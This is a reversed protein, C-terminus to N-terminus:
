VDSSDAAAIACYQETFDRAWQAADSNVKGTGSITGQSTLMEQETKLAVSLEAILSIGQGLHFELKGPTFWFRDISNSNVFSTRGQRMKALASAAHRRALSEFGDIGLELTGDCLAKMRYDAVVCVAAFRSDPVGFVGVAQAQRCVKNWISKAEEINGQAALKGVRSGIGNLQAFVAPDPDITCGPYSYYLTNGERRDYRHFANRLAVAFDDVQLAPWESDAIGFLVIDNLKRDIVYGRLRTIGGLNRVADPVYGTRGAISLKEQLVKLSLARTSGGTPKASYAFQSACLSGGLMALSTERIFRRRSYNM